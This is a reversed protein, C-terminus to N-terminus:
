ALALTSSGFAAVELEGAALAQIQPTSGQFRLPEYTYSKGLNPLIEPHPKALTEVLPTIQSPVQAWGIRLRVPDASADPTALLLIATLAAFGILRRM